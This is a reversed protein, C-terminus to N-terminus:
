DFCLSISLRLQFREMLPYVTFNGTRRVAAASDKRSEEEKEEEQGRRQRDRWKQTDTLSFWARLQV